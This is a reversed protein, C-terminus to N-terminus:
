KAESGAQDIVDKTREVSKMAEALSQDFLQVRDHVREAWEMFKGRADAMGGSDEEVNVQKPEILSLKKGRPANLLGAIKTEM